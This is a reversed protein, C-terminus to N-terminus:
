AELALLLIEDETLFRLTTNYQEKSDFCVDGSHNTRPWILRGKPDPFICTSLAKIEGDDYTIIQHIRGKVIHEEGMIRAPRKIEVYDGVAIRIPIM